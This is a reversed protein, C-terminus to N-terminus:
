KKELQKKILSMLLERRVPKSIFGDCGAIRAKDQDNSFAYASQAIVPLGPVIRKILKTAEFGDMVPMKLDMLVIQIEPTTKVIDLAEQGNNAFFLNAQENELMEKLLMMCINDDEAILINVLQLMGDSAPKFSTEAQSINIPNYPINFFFTAGKGLESEVWIKGGLKEIYAKSIALGLGAGEYNRAISMDVQRFREFIVSQMEPAIGIGTDKIYFEIVQRRLCYGFDISGSKTFKLANKILNSLVQTLKTNDTEIKSLEDSLETKYMLNLGKGNAEPTFFTLLHRFLFNVNTEQLDLEIQGTEIKSINVIDNIINLMRQGSLEIMRIFEQQKADPLRPNRLLEAFGLIGNMPTRIEHSMNQLFATKLLDSEEAHEKAKYLEENIQKYEENQAEIELNKFNLLLEMEKRATIDMSIGFTGVINGEKDRLPLKSTSVWTDPRDPWTEKEEKNVPQGTRIIEQEDEYAQRAHEETFFDSDTMGIVEAPDNLGFLNAQAKSIRIFRSEMDKFYISDPANNILALMLYQERALSEEAHKRETIDEKIAVFHSIKGDHNAVPSISASEWFLEGNKKKDHFEGTWVKGSLIEDWLKKYFSVSQEGSKLIRPNKGYVEDRSYGTIESFKPNVYEIAGDINTIVINVPSQEIAKNLLIIKQETVKSETIDRVTAQLLRTGANEIRSLLVTAQFETNDARKHTWEFYNSGKELALDMMELSKVISLAGDPQYEPSLSAPSQRTFDKEDICAFLEITASNAGLFGQEPTLIMIADRSDTYLSRYREESEKLAKEIHKIETIDNALGVMGIIEGDNDRLPIKSVLLCLQNGDASFGIGERNLIVNGDQIIQQDETFFKEALEKPFVEFDTKYLIDMESIIGLYKLHGKVEKSHLPNVIINRYEKDKVFVGVPLNDILTRLLTREKQITEEAQKRAKKEKLEDLARKIVFPLKELRSKLVYDIAGKRLLEVAIEEGVTGSVCIFPVDPCIEVSWRLATFGDFGPLKFDSLILDYYRTRLFSVFEKEVATCDMNLDYGADILSERLLEADRPSDELCLVKLVEDRKTRTKM